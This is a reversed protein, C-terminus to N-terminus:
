LTCIMHSAPSVWLIETRTPGLVDDSIVSTTSLLQSVPAVQDHPTLLNLVGVLSSFERIFSDLERPVHGLNGQVFDSPFLHPM